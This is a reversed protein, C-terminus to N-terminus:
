IVNEMATADVFAGPVVRAIQDVNKAFEAGQAFEAEM